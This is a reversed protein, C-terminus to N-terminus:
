RGGRATASLPRPPLSGTRDNGHRPRTSLPRSHSSSRATRRPTDVLLGGPRVRRFGRSTPGWASLPQAVDTSVRDLLDLFDGIARGIVVSCKATNTKSEGLSVVRSLLWSRVFVRKVGHGRVADAHGPVEVRVIGGGRGEGRPELAEQDGALGATIDSSSPLLHRLEKRVVEKLEGIVVEVDRRAHDLGARRLHRVLLGLGQEDRSTGSAHEDREPRVGGGDVDPDEGFTRRSSRRQFPRRSVKEEKEAFSFSAGFERASM